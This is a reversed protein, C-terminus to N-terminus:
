LMVLLNAIKTAFDYIKCVSMQCFKADGTPFQALNNTKALTSAIYCCWSSGPFSQEYAVCYELDLVIASTLSYKQVLKHGKVENMQHDLPRVSLTEGHNHNM